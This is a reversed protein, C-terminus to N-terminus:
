PGSRGSPTGSRSPKADTTPSSRDSGAESTHPTLMLGEVVLTVRLAEMHDNTAAPEPQDISLSRVALLTPGRELASLMKTVGRVDGTADARVSIRTFANPSASDPRIQVAGLRVGTTAAAGSVLGALTAGAAAPSGGSLLKPALSVFRENRAALSDGIARRITLLAEARAREATTSLADEGAQHRWSSWAPLGRSLAVLILISVVGVTLARRDRQSMGGSMGIAMGADNGTRLGVTALLRHTAPYSKASTM